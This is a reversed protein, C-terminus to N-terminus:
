RCPTWPTDYLNVDKVISTVHWANAQPCFSAARLRYEVNFVARGAAVWGLYGPPPDNCERYEFCQENIAIDFYPKLDALQGVDNKLAVRFGKRHALNALATNFLLQTHASIALGTDNQYADVNDFEIADVRLQRARALRASLENLIFQRPTEKRGTTPNIGLTAANINLWNEDHYGDVFKGFLCGHCSHNFSVYQPFDPRWHEASGADIYGIVKGGHAHIAKVAASNLVGYNNPTYCTGDQYLDIDFVVPAVTRGTAFSTGTLRTNIFGTSAYLCGGAPKRSGRLQYQWRSSRPFVACSGVRTTCPVPAPCGVRACGAVPRPASRVALAVSLGALLLVSVGVRVTLRGKM